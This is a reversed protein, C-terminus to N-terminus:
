RKRKAPNGRVEERFRHEGGLSTWEHRRPREQPFGLKRQEEGLKPAERAGRPDRHRLLDVDGVIAVGVDGLKRTPLAAHQHQPAHHELGERQGLEPGDDGVLERM